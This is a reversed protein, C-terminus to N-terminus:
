KSILPQLVNIFDDLTEPKTIFKYAGLQLTLNITPAHSTTSLIIVPISKLHAIKKIEVLFEQGTMIPMNLDLFIVDPSLEKSDLKELANKANTFGKCIVTQSIENLALQFIEQDERDDDILLINKFNM